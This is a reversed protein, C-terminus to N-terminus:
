VCKREIKRESQEGKEKQKQKQKKNKKKVWIERENEERKGGGGVGWKIIVNKARIEVATKNGALNESINEKVKKTEEGGKDQFKSKQPNNTGNM